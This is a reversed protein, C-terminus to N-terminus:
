YILRATKSTSLHKGGGGSYGGVTTLWKARFIKDVRGLLLWKCVKSHGHRRRGTLLDLLTTKGCGSPGMIAVLEGPNFYVSVNKLIQKRPRIHDMKVYGADSSRRGDPICTNYRVKDHFQVRDEGNIALNSRAKVGSSNTESKPSDHALGNQISSKRIFSSLQKGMEEGLGRHKGNTVLPSRDKVATELQTLNKRLKDTKDGTGNDLITGPPKESTLDFGLNDAESSERKASKQQEDPFEGDSSIDEDEEEVVTLYSEYKGAKNAINTKMQGESTVEEIPRGRDALSICM